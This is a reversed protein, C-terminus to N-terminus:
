FLLPVFRRTCEMYAAYAAGFRALNESEEAVSIAIISATPSLALVSSGITLDRKGIDGDAVHSTFALGSM